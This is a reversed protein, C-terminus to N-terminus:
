RRYTPDLANRQQNLPNAMEGRVHSPLSLYSNVAGELNQSECYQLSAREVPRTKHYTGGGGGLGMSIRAAQAVTFKPPQGGPVVGRIALDSRTIVPPPPGAAAQQPPQVAAQQKLIRAATAVAALQDSIPGLANTVAAAVSQQIAVAGPQNSTRRPPAPQQSPGRDVLGFATQEYINTPSLGVSRRIAATLNSPEGTSSSPAPGHWYEGGPQRQTSRQQPQPAPRQASRRGPRQTHSKTQSVGPAYEITSGGVGRWIIENTTTDDAGLGVSRRIATRLDAM